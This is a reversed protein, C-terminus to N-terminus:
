RGRMHMDILEILADEDYSVPHISDYLPSKRSQWDKSRYLMRLKNRAIGWAYADLRNPLTEERAAQLLAVFVEHAYEEARSSYDCNIRQSFYWVFRDRNSRYYNEIAQYIDTHEM